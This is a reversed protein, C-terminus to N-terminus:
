PACDGRPLRSSLRLAPISAHTASCFRRSADNVEAVSSSDIGPRRRRDHEGRRRPTQSDYSVVGDGVHEGNKGLNGVILHFPIRPDVPVDRFAVLVPHSPRLARVSTPGGMGFVARM